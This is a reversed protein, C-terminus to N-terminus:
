LHTSTHAESHPRYIPRYARQSEAVFQPPSLHSIPFHFPSLKVIEALAEVSTGEALRERV